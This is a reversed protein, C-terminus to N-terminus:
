TYTLRLCSPNVGNEILVAAIEDFAKVVELAKVPIIDRKATKKEALSLFGESFHANPNQVEGINFATLAVQKENSAAFYFHNIVSDIISPSELDFTSYEYINSHATLISQIKEISETHLHTKQSKKDDHQYRVIGRDSVSVKCIPQCWADTLRYKFLVFNDM